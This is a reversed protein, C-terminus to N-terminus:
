HSLIRVQIDNIEYRFRNLALPGLLVHMHSIEDLQIHFFPQSCQFIPELLFLTCIHIHDPEVTQFHIILIVGFHLNLNVSVLSLSSSVSYPDIVFLMCWQTNLSLVMVSILEICWGIPPVKSSLPRTWRAHEHSFADLM